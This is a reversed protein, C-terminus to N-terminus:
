SILTFRDEPDGIWIEGYRASDPINMDLGNTCFRGQTQRLTEAPISHLCRSTSRFGYIIYGRKDAKRYMLTGGVYLLRGIFTKLSFKTSELTDKPLVSRMEMTIAHGDLFTFFLERETRVGWITQALREAQGREADTLLGWIERADRMCEEEIIADYMLMIRPGDPWAHEIMRWVEQEDGYEDLFFQVFEQIAGKEEMSLGKEPDNRCELAMTNVIRFAAFVKEAWSLRQRIERGEGDYRM